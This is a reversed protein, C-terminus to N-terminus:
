SFVCRGVEHRLQKLEVVRSSKRNGGERKPLVVLGVHSSSQCAREIAEDVTECQRVKLNCASDGISFDVDGDVYIAERLLGARVYEATTGSGYLDIVQAIWARHSSRENV